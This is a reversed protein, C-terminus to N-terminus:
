FGNKLATKLILCREKPEVKKRRFFISFMSFVLLYYIRKHNRLRNDLVTKLFRFRVFIFCREEQKENPGVFGTKRFILSFVTSKWNKTQKSLCVFFMFFM